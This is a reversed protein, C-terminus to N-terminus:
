LTNKTNLQASIKNKFFRAGLAEFKTWFPWKEIKLRIQAAMKTVMVLTFTFHIDSKLM